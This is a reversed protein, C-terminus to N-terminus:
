PSGTDFGRWQLHGRVRAPRERLWQRLEQHAQPFAEIAFNRRPDAQVYPLIFDYLREDERALDMAEFAQLAHVVRKALAAECDQEELCRTALMAGVFAFPDLNRAFTLDIGTQVISWKDTVPDHYARYNTISTGEYGDWHGIISDAAWQTLFTDFEFFSEIEPYFQGPPMAALKAALERLMPWGPPDDGPEVNDCPDAKFEIDFCSWELDSLPINENLFDCGHAGEYMMGRNSAFRRKLYRRDVSELHLYLGWLEDNVYLQVYSARPAPLGLQRFFAYGLMEHTMTPDQVMNNFTFHTEGYLRSEAPCGAVNPDDWNLNVKFAAKHFLDRSSGCGGKIHMGVAFTQDAFSLEGPYTSRHFPVCGPPFAERNMATWSSPPIELDFRLMQAPNFLYASGDDTRLVVAASWASWRACVGDDMYRVRVGYATWDALGSAAFSGESLRVSTRPAELAARWVLSQLAAARERWIEFETAAHAHGDPDVFASAEIVLEDAIVIRGPTPTM